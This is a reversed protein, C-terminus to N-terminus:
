YRFRGAPGRARSIRFYSYQASGVKRRRSCDTRPIIRPGGCADHIGKRWYALVSMGATRAVAQRSLEFSDVIGRPAVATAIARDQRGFRKCEMDANPEHRKRGRLFQRSPEFVGNVFQLIYKGATKRAFGRM